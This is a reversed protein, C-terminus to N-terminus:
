AGVASYRRIGFRWLIRVAITGVLIWILQIGFGSLVEQPSLRGLLLEIPFSFAWQFPM